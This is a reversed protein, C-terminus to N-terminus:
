MYEKIVISMNIKKLKKNKLKKIFKPKKAKIKKIDEDTILKINETSNYLIKLDNGLSYGSGDYAFLNMNLHFDDIYIENDKLIDKYMKDSQSIDPIDNNSNSLLCDECFERYKRKHNEVTESTETIMNKTEDHDEVTESTEIMNNIKPVDDNKTNPDKAVAVMTFLLDNTNYCDDGMEIKSMATSLKMSGSILDDNTIVTKKKIPYFYAPKMENNRHELCAIPKKITYGFNAQNNCNKENCLIVRVDSMSPMKHKACYSPEYSEYNYISKKKCNQVICLSSM